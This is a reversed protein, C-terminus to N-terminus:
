YDGPYVMVKVAVNTNVDGLIQCVYISEHNTEAPLTATSVNQGEVYTFVSKQLSIFNFM